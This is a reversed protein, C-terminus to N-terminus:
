SNVWKDLNDLKSVYVTQLIRKFKQLRPPSTSGKISSKPLKRRRENRRPAARKLTTLNILTKLSSVTTTKM